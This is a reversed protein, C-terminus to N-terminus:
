DYYTYMQESVSDYNEGLVNLQMCALSANGDIDNGFDFFDDFAQNPQFIHHSLGQGSNQLGFGNMLSSDCSQGVSPITLVKGNNQLGFDNMLSSGCDQVSSPVSPITFMKGSNELGFGNMLSSDYDQGASPVSVLKGNNQLGFGNMPSSDYDQGSSPASPITLAKASNQLGFGNMLSSDCNQGVNPASFLQGHNQFKFGNMLSSDCFQGDNPISFVKGSNQFEFGNMLSSDHFYQNNMHDLDMHVGNSSYTADIHTNREKQNDVHRAVPPMRGFRRLGLGQSNNSSFTNDKSSSTQGRKGSFNWGDERCKQLHSAVQMRTLGPVKMTDVIDRPLCRGERTLKQVARLFKEHLEETWELCIKKKASCIEDDLLQIDSNGTNYCNRVNKRADCNDKRNESKPEISEHCRRFPELKHIRERIVHQRAQFVVDDTLPRKIVLFAGNKIMKLLFNDDVEERMVMSLINMHKTLRLFTIIDVDRLDSDILLLDFKGKKVSLTRLAAGADEVWTFKNM